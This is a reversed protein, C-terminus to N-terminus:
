KRKMGWLNHTLPSPLGGWQVSLFASAWSFFLNSLHITAQMESGVGLEGDGTKFSGGTEQWSDWCGLKWRLGKHLEWKTGTRQSGAFCEPLFHGKRRVGQHKTVDARLFPVTSTSGSSTPPQIQPCILLKALWGQLRAREAELCEGSPQM